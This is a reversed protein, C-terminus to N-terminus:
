ISQLAEPPTARSPLSIFGWTVAIMKIKSKKTSEVDRVEDGIYIMDDKLIKFKKSIRDIIKNKKFSNFGAYILDIKIKNENLVFKIIDENNSSIIILKYGKEILAKIVKNMGKFIKVSDIRRRLQSRMEMVLQPFKFISINLSKLIENTKKNRLKLLEDRNEIKRIKLKFSLENYIKLVEEMSDAITGDFDFIIYKM